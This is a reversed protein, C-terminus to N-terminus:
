SSAEDTFVAYNNVSFKEGYREIYVKTFVAGFLLIIFSYNTWLMIIIISGAAGYTSGPSTYSFFLDLLFKAIVFLFSTLFAGTWVDSWNIKVDPLIKFIAAFLVTIVVLSSLLGIIKMLTQSQEQFLQSTISSFVLSGLLLLGIVLIMIFSFLRDKLFSTVRREPNTKIGWIDDLSKQVHYFLGTAGYLLVLVSIVTVWFTDTSLHANAIINEIEIAVDAGLFMAIQASLQNTIAETGYFSGALNVVIIFLGPLSFIAYYSIAAANRFPDIKYWEKGTQKFLAATEKSFFNM